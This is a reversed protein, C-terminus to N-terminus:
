RVAIVNHCMKYFKFKSTIVDTLIVLILMMVSNMQIQTEMGADQPVVHILIPTMAEQAIIEIFFHM